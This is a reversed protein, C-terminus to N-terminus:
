ARLHRLVLDAHRVGAGAEIFAFAQEVSRLWGSLGQESHIAWNAFAHAALFRRATRDDTPMTEVWRARDRYEIPVAGTSEAILAEAPVVSPMPAAGFASRVADILNGQGPSWRRVAAAAGRVWALAGAASDGATLLTRVSLREFEWWSEWDMLVSPRLVPPMVTTADLGVYEAEAPFRSPNTVFVGEPDADAGLLAAATPCYHSLTVSVGRPDIVSVRPFQRCALPLADHGLAGQIACRGAPDHFVCAGDCTALVAPADAPADPSLVFAPGAAGRAPTLQRCEIAAQAQELRDAEIPIPWDSTCCVGSDRCGYTAHFALVRVDRAPM